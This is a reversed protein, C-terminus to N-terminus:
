SEENSQVLTRRHHPESNAHWGIEFREENMQITEIPRFTASAHRKWFSHLPRSEIWLYRACLRQSKHHSTTGELNLIQCAFYMGLIRIREDDLVREGPCSRCARSVSQHEPCCTQVAPRSSPMDPRHCTQVASKTRSAFGWNRPSWPSPGSHRWGTGTDYFWWVTKEKFILRIYKTMSDSTFNPNDLGPRYVLLWVVIRLEESTIAIGVENPLFSNNDYRETVFRTSEQHGRFITLLRRYYNHGEGVSDDDEM